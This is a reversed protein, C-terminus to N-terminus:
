MRCQVVDLALCGANLVCQKMVYVFQLREVSIGGFSSKDLMLLLFFHTSPELCEM